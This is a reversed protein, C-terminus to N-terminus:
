YQKGFYRWGDVSGESALAAPPQALAAEPAPMEVGRGRRRQRRPPQKHLLVQTFMQIATEQGVGQVLLHMLQAEEEGTLRRGIGGGGRGKGKGGAMTEVINLM